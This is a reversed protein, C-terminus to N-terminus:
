RGQQMMQQQIAKIQEPTPPTGTNMYQQQIGQIQTASPVTTTASVGPPMVTGPTPAITTPTPVASGSGPVGTGPIYSGPITGGPPPVVGPPLSMMSSGPPVVAGSPPLGNSGTTGQISRQGARASYNDMVTQFCTAIKTGDNQNLKGQGSMLLDYKDPGIASRICGEIEPKVSSPVQSLGDKMKQFGQTMDTKQQYSVLGNDLAFTVCQDAHSDKACYAECSAKSNCGGPGKGGIKRALYADEKSVLGASEAFDLCENFHSDIQCYKECSGKDTCKGPLQGGKKLLAVINKALALQDAPIVGLEEGFAVCAEIHEANGSCYTECEAKTKCQGPTKGATIKETLKKGLNISDPDMIKNQEAYNLCATMHSPNECYVQCDSASKCNGLAAIPFKLANIKSSYQNGDGFSDVITTPVGTDTFTTPVGVQAEVNLAGVIMAGAVAISSITSLYKKMTNIKIIM